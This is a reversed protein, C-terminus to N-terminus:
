KAGIVVFNYHDSTKSKLPNETTSEIIIKNKYPMITMREDSIYPNFDSASRKVIATKNRIVNKFSMLVDVSLYLRKLNANILVVDEVFYYRSLEEIYIYNFDIDGYEIDVIPERISTSQKFTGKIIGVQIPNKDIANNPAKNQYLYMSLSTPYGIKAYLTINENIAQNTLAERTFLSDYYWGILSQGSPIQTLTPFTSPTQTKFREKPLIQPTNTEYEIDYAYFGFHNLIDSELQYQMNSNHFTLYKYEDQQWDGNAYVLLYSSTSSNYFYIEYDGGTDLVKIKTYIDNDYEHGFNLGVYECEITLKGLVYKQNIGSVMGLTKIYLNTDQTLTNTLSFDVKSSFTDDYYYGEIQYKHGNMDLIDNVQYPIIGDYIRTSITWDILMDDQYFYVSYVDSAWVSPTSSLYTDMYVPLPTNDEFHIYKYEDGLWTQSTHDFVKISDYYLGDSSIAQLTTYTNGLRDTFPQSPPTIYLYSQYVGDDIYNRWGSITFSTETMHYQMIADWENTDVSTPVCFSIYQYDNNSWGTHENYVEIYNANDLYYRLVALGNDLTGELAVFKNDKSVFFSDVSDFTKFGINDFTQYNQHIKYNGYINM